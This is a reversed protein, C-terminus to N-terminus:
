QSLHVVISMEHLDSWNSMNGSAGLVGRAKCCNLRRASSFVHPVTCVCRVARAFINASWAAPSLIRAVRLYGTGRRIHIVINSICTRMLARRVM